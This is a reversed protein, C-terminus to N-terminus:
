FSNQRLRVDFEGGHEHNKYTQEMSTKAVPEIITQGLQAHELNFGGAVGLHLPLRLVSPVDIGLRRKWFSGGARRKWPFRLSAFHHPATPWSLVVPRAPKLCDIASFLFAFPSSHM